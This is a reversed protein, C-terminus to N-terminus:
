RSVQGRGAADRVGARALLRRVARLAAARAGGGAGGALAGQGADSAAEATEAPAAPPPSLDDGALCRAGPVRAQHWRDSDTGRGDARDDSAAGPSARARPRSCRSWSLM